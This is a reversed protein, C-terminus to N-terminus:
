KRPPPLRQSIELSAAQSFTKGEFAQIVRALDVQQCQRKTESCLLDEVADAVPQVQKFHPVFETIADKQMLWQSILNPLTFTRTQILHQAILKYLWKNLNYMSVMPTQHLAIQLTATGSAVLVLDAWKLVSETQGMTMTLGEDWLYDFGEETVIQRIMQELREDLAAVIGVLQPHKKKLAAFVAVMTRWNSQIEGTRSGPLIALKMSAEPLDGAVQDSGPPHCAPDFVPHGVFTASMNRQKFWDPEFPLICLVHDSWKHLRRIRWAGWAWLQPAVLHVIAAQPLTKRVAACISWNAAPSDVPVLMDIPNEVLWRRLRKLRQRHAWAHKLTDLGMAAHQTTTEILTAGAEALKPGGMAYIKLNPHQALLQRVVGAALADGSPEFTTLLISQSTTMM